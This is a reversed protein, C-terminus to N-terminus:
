QAEQRERRRTLKPRRPTSRRGQAQDYQNQVDRTDIQVILDGPNVRTGTEVPMKTIVGGAKSKVEVISSRSSSATRRRM